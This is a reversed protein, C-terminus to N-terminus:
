GGARNAALQLLARLDHVVPVSCSRALLELYRTKPSGHPFGLLARGSRCYLGFEVNTTFGPLTRLDRPVWFAIATAQELARWEWFVQEDDYPSAEFGDEPEPVLVVGSYGLGCLIELAEPRWSVVDKTRPSPGALFLWPGTAPIAQRAYIVQM